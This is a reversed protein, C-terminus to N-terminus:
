EAHRRLRYGVKEVLLEFAKLTLTVDRGDRRVVRGTLDVEVTGFREIPAASSASASHHVGRRLMARVRLLLEMVGFPKTVYDDAGTRFGRVRDTEEGRATLLVVIPLVPQGETHLRRVPPRDVPLHVRVDHRELDLLPLSNANAQRVVAHESVRHVQVAMEEIDNLRVAGASVNPPWKALVGDREVVHIRMHDLERSVIGPRAPEQVAVVLVMVDAPHRGLDAVDLSHPRSRM